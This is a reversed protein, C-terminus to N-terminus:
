LVTGEKEHALWAITKEVGEGFAVKCRFGTDRELKEADFCSAPLQVGTFPVAGFHLVSQSKSVAHMVQVFERLPRPAGSGLYYASGPKGKEGLAVLARALETIYLFDYLQCGDTLDCEEGRAFRRLMNNVFRNTMDTEGYANGIKGWCLPIGLAAAETKCMLHATYKAISYHYNQSPLAGDLPVFAECEDEMISGAGVFRSCSLAKAMRVADCAYGVNALQVGCNARLSGASGTWALHFFVDAGEFASLLAITEPKAYDEMPLCVVQALASLRIDPKHTVACVRYGSTHLSKVLQYGVFGSAGTVIATKM